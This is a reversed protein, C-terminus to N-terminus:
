IGMIAEWKLNIGDYEKEKKYIERLKYRKSIGNKIGIFNIEVELTQVEDWLINLTLKKNYPFYYKTNWANSTKKNNNLDDESIPIFIRSIKNITFYADIDKLLDFDGWISFFYYFPEKRVLKEKFVSIKKRKNISNHIPVHAFVNKNKNFIPKASDGLFKYSEYYTTTCSSILFISQILFILKLKNM